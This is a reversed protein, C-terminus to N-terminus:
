NGQLPAAKAFFAQMEKGVLEPFQMFPSHDGEPIFQLEAHPLTSLMWNALEEGYFQSEGGYVLLTPVPLTALFARFDQRMLDQWITALSLAPMRRLFDRQMQIARDKDDYLQRNKANKGFACLEVIAEPLDAALADDFAKQRASPFDFYVGFQWTEDTGLKPTMDIVVTQRVRRCGYKRLYAWILAAGMSHGVLRVSDLDLSELMAHLDDVMQDVTVAKEFRGPHTSHGRADWAIARYGQKALLTMLPLAREHNSSWGHLFVVPEGQGIEFVPLKEGDPAAFETRIKKM